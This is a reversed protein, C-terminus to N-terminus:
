SSPSSSRAACRRGRRRRASLGFLGVLTLVGGPAPITRESPAIGVLTLREGAGFRSAFGVPLAAPKSVPVREGIWDVPSTLGNGGPPRDPTRLREIGGLRGGSFHGFSGQAERGFGQESHRVPPGGGSQALSPATAAMGVFVCLGYTLRM